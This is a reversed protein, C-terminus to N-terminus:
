SASVFELNMRTTTTTGKLIGIGTFSGAGCAAIAQVTQTGTPISNAAIDMVLNMTANAYTGNPNTWRPITGYLEDYGAALISSINVCYFITGNGSAKGFWYNTSGIRIGFVTGIYDAVSSWQIRGAFSSLKITGSTPISISFSSGVASYSSAINALTIDTTDTVAKLTSNGFTTGTATLTGTVALGTSTVALVTAGNSQLSINGTSDGTTVIGGAGTTIANITSAM